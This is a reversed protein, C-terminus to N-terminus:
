KWEGQLVFGAWHYASPWRKSKWMEVQAARLAAAPSLREPGLMKQYFRQMLEATAKDPLSWLSVVVRPAGAYMFGRTLNIMGEGKIEKGLGTRCASLVVLEAPLKLNYIDQARLYGDQPRGREDVLSLVIGSREPDNTILSHTAFHLIRYQSLAASTAAARSAAFDLAQLRDSAPVLAMVAEAERRTHYLRPLGRRVDSEGLDELARELERLPDESSNSSPAGPKKANTGSAALVREDDSSFVPDALVAIAKPAPQRNALDRRLVALTSASPLNIIEHDVILPCRATLLPCHTIASARNDKQKRSVSKQRSGVAWQGSGVPMPLVAFPVYQLAGDAVILLRKRGLQAAVPTLLM